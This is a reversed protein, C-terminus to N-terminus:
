TKLFDIIGQATNFHRTKFSRYEELEKELELIRKRLLSNQEETNPLNLKLQPDPIVGEYGPHYPAEQLYDKPPVAHIRELYKQYEPSNVYNKLDLTTAGPLQDTKFTNM